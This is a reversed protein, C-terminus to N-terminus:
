DSLPKLPLGSSALMSYTRFNHRRFLLDLSVCAIIFVFTICIYLFIFVRLFSLVYSLYTKFNPFSLFIYIIM